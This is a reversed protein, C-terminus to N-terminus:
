KDKEELLEMVRDYLKREKGGLRGEIPTLAERSSLAVGMVFSGNPLHCPLLEKLPSLLMQNLGCVDVYLSQWEHFAHYVTMWMPHTPYCWQELSSVEELDEQLLIFSLVLARVLLFPDELQKSEGVISRAWLHTTLIGLLYEGDQDKCFTEMVGEPSRLVELIAGTAAQERKKEELNYIVDVSLNKYRFCLPELKYAAYKWPKSISGNKEESENKESRYYEEISKRYSRNMLPSALGYM